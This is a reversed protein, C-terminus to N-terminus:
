GDSPASGGTNTNGVYTVTYGSGPVPAPASAPTNTTSCCGGLMNGVNESLVEAQSFPYRGGQPSYPNLRHFKSLEKASLLKARTTQSYDATPM